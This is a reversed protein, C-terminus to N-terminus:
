RVRLEPPLPPLREGAPDLVALIAAAPIIPMDEPWERFLREMRELEAVTLDALTRGSIGFLWEETRRLGAVHPSAPQPLRAELAALRRELDTM